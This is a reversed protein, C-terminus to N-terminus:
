LKVKFDDVQEIKEICEELSESLCLDMVSIYEELPYKGKLLLLFSPKFNM